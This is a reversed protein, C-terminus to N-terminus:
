VIGVEWHPGRGKKNTVNQIPSPRRAPPQLSHRLSAFDFPVFTQSLATSFCFCFLCSWGGFSLHGTYVSGSSSCLSCSEESIISPWLPSSLYGKANQNPLMLVECCPSVIGIDVHRSCGPRDQCETFIQPIFSHTSFFRSLYWKYINFTILM